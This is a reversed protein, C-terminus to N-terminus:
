QPRRMEALARTLEMSSRHLASHRAGEGKRYTSRKITGDDDRYPRGYVECDIWEEARAKFHECIALVAQVKEIKM